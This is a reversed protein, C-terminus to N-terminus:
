ANHGASAMIQSDNTALASPGFHHIAVTNWEPSIKFLHTHKPLFFSFCVSASPLFGTSLQEFERMSSCCQLTSLKKREAARVVAALEWTIGMAIACSLFWSVPPRAAGPAVSHSPLGRRSTSKEVEQVKIGILNIVAPRPKSWRLQHARTILYSASNHTSLRHVSRSVDTGAM